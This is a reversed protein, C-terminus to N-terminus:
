LKFIFPELILESWPMFWLPQDVEMGNIPEDMVLM